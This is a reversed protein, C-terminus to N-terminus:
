VILGRAVKGIPRHDTLSIGAFARFRQVAVVLALALVILPLLARANESHRLHTITAFM